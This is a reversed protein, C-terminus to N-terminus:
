NLASSLIALAALPATDTRLIHPSLKVGKAGLTILHDVEKHSFGKEPGIYFLVHNLPPKVLSLLSPAAPNTDGFFTPTPLSKLTSISDGLTLKPLYLRGSQKMASLLISHARKLQNPSLDTKESLDGPYLILETMGLECGKELIVDLRNIKPIAQAIRLSVPEKEKTISHIQLNNKEYSAIALEGKGNVLEFTEGERIRMVKFHKFEEESFQPHLLNEVYFRDHPM